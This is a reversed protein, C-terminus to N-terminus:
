TGFWGISWGVVLRCVSRINSTCVCIFGCVQKVHFFQWVMDKQKKTAASFEQITDFDEGNVTIIGDGEQVGFERLFSDEAIATIGLFPDSMRMDFGQFELDIQGPM